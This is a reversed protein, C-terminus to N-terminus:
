RAPAVPRGPSGRLRIRLAALRERCQRVGADSAGSPSGVRALRAALERAVRHFRRMAWWARAGGRGFARWEAAQRQRLSSLRAREDPLLEGRTVEDDLAVAFARAERGLGRVIVVGLVVLGPGLFAAAVLPAGPMLAWGVPAARCPGGSREPNCLLHALIRSAGANWAVHQAVAAGLAAVPVLVRAATSRVERVYGLGAGVTATFLAHDLGAVLGRLYVARTLGDMGGQVAALTFYRANETLAFGTGVLAGYVIGDVVGDLHAPWLLLVAGLATAKTLEEVVPAALLPTLTRAREAGAVAGLWAQLGDNAAASALAALGAGWLFAAGLIYGPEREFHNVLVVLGVALVASAAALGLILAPTGAAAWALGVAAVLTLLAAVISRAPV